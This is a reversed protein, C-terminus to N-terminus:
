SMDPTVALPYRAVVGMSITGSVAFICTAALRWRGAHRLRAFFSQNVFVTCEM